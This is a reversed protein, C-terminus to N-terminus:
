RPLSEELVALRDERGEAALWARVEALAAPNQLLPAVAAPLPPRVRVELHVSLGAVERLAEPLRFTVHPSPSGGTLLVGDANRRMQHLEEILEFGERVVVRGKAAFALRCSEIALACEGPPEIRLRELGSVAPPLQLRCRYEWPNETPELQIPVGAGARFGAGLDWLAGWRLPVAVLGDDLARFAVEFAELSRGEEVLLELYPRVVQWSGPVKAYLEALLAQGEAERGATSGILQMRNVANNLDRDDFEAYRDAWHLAREPNGAAHHHQVLLRLVRRKVSDLRDQKRVPELEDAARELLELAEAREGAALRQRAAELRELHPAEYREVLAADLARVREPARTWVLWTAL